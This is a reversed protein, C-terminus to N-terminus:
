ESYKAAVEGSAGKQALFLSHTSADYTWTIAHKSFDAEAQFTGTGGENLVLVAGGEVIADYWTGVVPASKSGGCAALSLCLVLVLCLCLIRKM